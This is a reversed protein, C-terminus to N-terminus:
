RKLFEAAVWGRMMGDATQVPVWTYGDMETSTEALLELPTNVPLENVIQGSLTAADRLNLTATTVRYFPYWDPLYHARLDSRFDPTCAQWGACQAVAEAATDTSRGGRNSGIAMVDDYGMTVHTINTLSSGYFYLTGLTQVVPRNEAVCEDRMEEASKDWTSSQWRLERMMGVIHGSCDAGYARHNNGGWKYRFSLTDTMLERLRLRDPHEM